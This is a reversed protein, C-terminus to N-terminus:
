WVFFVVFYLGTEYSGRWVIERLRKLYFSVDVLIGFGIGNSGKVGVLVRGRFFFFSVKEENELFFFVGEM